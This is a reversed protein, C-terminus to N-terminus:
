PTAGLLQRRLGQDRTDPHLWIDFFARALEADDLQALLHHSDYLQMGRGPQYVGVLQDGAVVDVFTNALLGQWRALTAAPVSHNLRRIEDMSTSVLRTRRISRYYSLQLAFPQTGDFPRQAAWLTANYIRLGFWTLDGGGLPQAQPLAARWAEDAAAPAPAFIATACFAAAAMAAKGRKANTSFSSSLM